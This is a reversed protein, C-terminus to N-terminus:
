FMGLWGLHKFWKPEVLICTAQAYVAPKWFNDMWFVSSKPLSELTGEIVCKRGKSETVHAKLVVTSDIPIDREFNINLKATVGRKNPLTPFGCYCLAEDLILSVVGKHVKGNENSLGKGFHYFAVIEGSKENILILPDIELKDPGFLEGQGVHYARHSPPIKESQVSHDFSPDNLLKQYFSTKSITELVDMRQLKLPARKRDDSTSAVSDKLTMSGAEDPWARVFTTVGLAFGLSPIVLARNITRFM